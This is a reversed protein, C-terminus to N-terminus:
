GDFHHADSTGYTWRFGNARMIRVVPHAPSRWAIEPHSRSAWWANPVIGTRSHYPNEWTNLDIARGYSHPSRASPNGVVGRCNFASTNGSAMSRYNDAGGLTDSWGFRDVRYMSRVPLRSRYLDAFVRVTRRAIDARVVIEGRYRYGDYGWFNTRVLRLDGRGVPCGRHWSRGVMSRWVKRSIRSIDANAGKGKARAQRPLEVRPQPAARPYSVRDGPAVNNLEHVESEAAEYWRGERGVVRWSSDVRPAVDLRARGRDNFRVREVEQWSGGELRRRVDAVGPVPDGNSAVWEFTLRVETEDVIRRPGDVSIATARRDPEVVATASSSAALEETGDFVARVANDARDPLVTMTTEARGDGDTVGSPLETWAGGARREFRVTVGTVPLATDDRTLAAAVTRDTDVFGRQPAVLVLTTSSGAVDPAASAGAPLLAVLLAVVLGPLAFAASRATPHAM